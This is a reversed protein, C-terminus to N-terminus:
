GYNLVGQALRRAAIECYREEREIGVARKGLDKAARLTTGSGMFTDLITECAKAQAICWLILEMPKQTPHLKAERPWGLEFVKANGDWSCWAIECDAFDRNRFYPEKVWVLYKRSPPLCFYNMGWVISLNCKEICMDLLEQCCADDDWRENLGRQMRKGTDGIGVTAGIGYPPDTMLLDFTQLQPLVDRCDAHYITIGDQEYYPQITM